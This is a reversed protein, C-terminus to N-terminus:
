SALSSICKSARRQGPGSSQVPSASRTQGAVTAEIHGLAERGKGRVLDGVHGTLGVLFDRKADHAGIDAVRESIRFEFVDDGAGIGTETVRRARRQHLQGRVMEQQFQEVTRRQREFVERHLQDTLQELRGKARDPSRTVM